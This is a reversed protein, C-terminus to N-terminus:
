GRKILNLFLVPTFGIKQKVFYTSIIMSFAITSSTAYAAGIAGFQKILFYNLLLNLVLSLITINRLTKEYGCMSLLSNVPGTSINFFQGISLIILLYYGKVFEEGWFSLISKGWIIFLGSTTLGIITLIFTIRYVMARMEEHRNNAYLSSIKPMLTFNTLQLFFATLLAIRMSVTYIGVEYSDSLWGLMITDTSTSLVMSATVFLLPLSTKTLRKGIWQAKLKISHVKNFITITTITTVTRAIAFIVATNIVNIKTDLIYMIFLIIAVIGMTLTQDALMSQWVRKHGALASSFIRTIVQPTLAILAIILPFYLTPDNFVLQTIQKAFLILILSISISTFTSIITATFIVDDIKKYENKSKLISTEKIVVHQLGMLGLVILVNSIRITLNIIGLGDPGLLKGMLISAILGLGMGAVKLIASPISKKIVEITHDDLKTYIKQLTKLKKREEM